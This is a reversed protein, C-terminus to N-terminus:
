FGRRFVGAVWLNQRPVSIGISRDRPHIGKATCHAQRRGDRPLHRPRDGLVLTDEIVQAIAGGILRNYHQPLM